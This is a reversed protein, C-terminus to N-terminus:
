NTGDNVAATLATNTLGTLVALMLMGLVLVLILVLIAIYFSLHDALTELVENDHAGNNDDDECEGDAETVWVRIQRTYLADKRNVHAQITVVVVYVGPSDYVHHVVLCTVGEALVAYYDTDDGYNIMLPTEDEKRLVLEIAFFVPEGVFTDVFYATVYVNVPESNPNGRSVVLQKGGGGPLVEVTATRLLIINDVSMSATVTYTGPHSYIHEKTVDVPGNENDRVHYSGDGFDIVYIANGSSTATLRFDVAEDTYADDGITNVTLTFSFAPSTSPTAEAQTDSEEWPVSLGFANPPYDSLPYEYSYTVSGLTVSVVIVCNHYDVLYRHQLLIVDPCGIIEGSETPTGDDFDVVWPWPYSEDSTVKIKLSVMVGGVVPVLDIFITVPPGPPPSPAFVHVLVDEAHYTNSGIIIRGKVTYTDPDNYQHSVEVEGSHPGDEDTSGDGFEISWFFSGPYSVELTIVASTGAAISHPDVILHLEPPVTVEIHVDDAHYKISDIIVWASVTYTGASNYQHSREVDGSHAEEQHTSGDGFDIFWSFPGAESVQLTIRARTGAVLLHPDVSLQIDPPATVEIHVDDAHYKTSDIIVWASVTYTGASNYRHIREVDGSHDGEADTSGDGFDILWSFPGAESVELTIFTDEDVEVTHPDVSLVLIQHPLPLVEIEVDEAHYLEYHLFIWASVTYTGPSNYQHSREVEGDYIGHVVSSGDGFNLFWPFSGSESVTLTILASTGELISDPVVSFDMDLAPPATITIQKHSAHYIKFHINVWARITYTGPSRYTHDVLVGEENYIGKKVPTGDGADIYYKFSGTEWVELSIEVTTGPEATEPHVDLIMMPKSSGHRIDPTATTNVANTTPNGMSRLTFTTTTNLGAPTPNSNPKSSAPSPKSTANTSLLTSKVTPKSTAQTTTNTTPKRTARPTAKANPRTTAKANPRTTAKANPRTTAKANPRATAKTTTNPTAKPTITPTAKPSRATSTNVAANPTAKPIPTPTSKPTTKPTPTPTPTSKPTTKPTPTPTPTSKPTTKPTPTPTPTSKPTTKPTPTPTPTSKPTTKPTPTPTPTSKPTTKSTPTSKPTTKSTPTPTPTSKPTTKPTPTPTPTSKPTTKPTPTPTPTLTSKTPTPTPKPAPPPTTTANKAWTVGAGYWTVALVLLLLGKDCGKLLRM